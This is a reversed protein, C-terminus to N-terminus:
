KKILKNKNTTLYLAVLGTCAALFSTVLIALKGANVMRMDNFALNDIFISMTFGIGGLIGLALIQRWKTGEPLSALGLRVALWSFVLIGLPKGFLLGFFIGPIVAPMPGGLSEPDIVVGANALAFLPM